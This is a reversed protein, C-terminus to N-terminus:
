RTPALWCPPLYMLASSRRRGSTSRWNSSPRNSSRFIPPSQAACYRTSWGPPGGTCISCDPGYSVLGEGLNDKYSHVVPLRAALALANIRARNAIMLPDVCVYLGDARGNLAEIASPIDEARGFEPRVTDLGLTRAAAQAAGFELAVVPNSSNGLIALRRLNPVFERLLEIRKGATDPLQVSFGTVNGGPRALSAVLGQGVPDGASAIVIPTDPAARKAARVQADGSLVVADVKLRAFEAAIEGAREIVGEAARYDITLNSGEVWGLEALRVVFAARRPREAVATSSALLGITASKGAQQARAALPVSAAAGGLALIFERRKM